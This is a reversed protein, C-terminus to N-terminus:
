LSVDYFQLIFFLFLSSPLYRNCDRTERNTKKISKHPPSSVVFYVSNREGIRTIRSTVFETISLLLLISLAVFTVCLSSRAFFENIEM